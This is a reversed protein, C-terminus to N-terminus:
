ELIFLLLVVLSNEIGGAVVGIFSGDTGSDVGGCDDGCVM